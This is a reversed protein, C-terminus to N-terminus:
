GENFLIIMQNHVLGVLQPYLQSSNAEYAEAEVYSLKFNKYALNTVRVIILLSVLHIFTEIICTDTHSHNHHNTHSEKHPIAPRIHLLYYFLM